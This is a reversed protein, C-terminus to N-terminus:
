TGLTIILTKQEIFYVARKDCFYPKWEMSSLWIYSVLILAVRNLPAHVFEELMMDDGTHASYWQERLTIIKILLKECCTSHEHCSHDGIM